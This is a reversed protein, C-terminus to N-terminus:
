PYVRIEIPATQIYEDEAGGVNNYSYITITSSNEVTSGLLGGNGSLFVATKGSTFANSLTASYVGTEVYAWVVAGGLTNELVTAVPADTGSQSLLAVYKLYSGGGAGLDAIDQTTCKVSGGDQELEVLETGDLTAADDLDSIKVKAM